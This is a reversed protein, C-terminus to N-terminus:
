QLPARRYIGREVHYVRGLKVLNKLTRDLTASTIPTGQAEARATIEPRTINDVDPFLALIRLETEGMEPPIYPVFLGTEDDRKYLFEEPKSHRPNWGLTYWPEKPGSPELLYAQTHSFGAFATSGAIKDQHRRYTGEALQKGFHMSSTINIRDKHCISTLQLLAFAVDRAKNQDGKILLPALPEVILHAGPPVGIRKYCYLFAEHAYRPDELLPKVDDFFEPLSFHPLNRPLGVLDLLRSYDEWRRDTTLYCLATPKNTPKGNISRGDLWRACWELLMTTKGAGPAGGLLTVTGFPIIGPIPDPFSGQSQIPPIVVSSM